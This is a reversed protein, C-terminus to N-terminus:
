GDDPEEVKHYGEMTEHVQFLLGGLLDVFQEDENLEHSMATLCAHVLEHYFTHGAKERTLGHAIQIRNSNDLFRGYAGDDGILGSVIEVTITQGM